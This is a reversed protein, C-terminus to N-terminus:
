HASAVANLLDLKHQFRQREKGPESLERARKLRKAADEIKGRALYVRAMALQTEVIRPNLALSQELLKQAVLPQNNDLAEHGLMLFYYPNKQLAQEVRTSIKEAQAQRGTQAYLISLNHLTNIHDPKIKLSQLYAQEAEAWRDNRKLLVALNNWIDSLAPQQEAAAKLYWFGTIDDGREMAEAAKNNYFLAVIEPMGITKTPFRETQRGGFDIIFSDGVTIAVKLRQELNSANVLLNVHGNLFSEGNRTVWYEPIAVDRFQTPYGLSTALSYALITLSLCNAQGRQLAQSATLTEGNLYEMSDGNNNFLFQLMARSRDSASDQGDVSRKLQKIVEDSIYFIDEVSEVTKKPGLPQDFIAMNSPEVINQATQPTSKCGVLGSCVVCLVIAYRNM